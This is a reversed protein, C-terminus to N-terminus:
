AWQVRFSLTTVSTPRRDTVYAKTCTLEM